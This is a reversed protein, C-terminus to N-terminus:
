FPNNRADNFLTQVSVSNDQLSKLQKVLGQDIRPIHAAQVQSTVDSDSPETNKLSNIRFFVFGYLIAVFILFALFSYKKAEDLLGNAKSLLAKLNFDNGKM